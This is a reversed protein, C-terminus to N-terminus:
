WIEVSETFVPKGDLKAVVTIRSPVVSTGKYEPTCAYGNVKEQRLLDEVMNDCRDKLTVAVPPVYVANSEVSPDGGFRLPMLYLPALTGAKALEEAKGMDVDSFDPAAKEPEAKKKGGFIDLFGM